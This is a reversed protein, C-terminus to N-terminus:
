LKQEGWIWGLRRWALAAEVEADIRAKRAKILSAERSNILFVSSEGEDFKIGEAELLVEALFEAERAAQWQNVYSSWALGAGLADAQWKRSKNELDLAINERNIRALELDGREKRLFLPLAAKFEFTYDSNPEVPSAASLAAIRADLQPKLQERALRIDADAAAGKAALMEYLPHDAWRASRAAGNLANADVWSSAEKWDVPATPIMESSLESPRGALDWLWSEAKARTQFLETSATAAEMRRTSWRLRAEVTDIAARDGGLVAARIGELRTYALQEAEAAVQAVEHAKYWKWYSDAAELILDNLLACRQAANLDVYAEAQRLATRRSDTLLGQGLRLTAGVSWIGGAPLTSEPNLYVGDTANWSSELALGIPTEALFGTSRYGYYETGGFSKSKESAFLKPDFAGRAKRLYAAAADDLLAAQLAIPHQNLVSHLFAGEELPTQAATTTAMAWACMLLFLRPMM